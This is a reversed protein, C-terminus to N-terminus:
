TNQSQLSKLFYRPMTPFSSPVDYLADSADPSSKRQDRKAGGFKWRPGENAADKTTNYEGPGPTKSKPFSM